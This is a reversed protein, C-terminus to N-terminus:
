NFSRLASYLRGWDGQLSLDFQKDFDAPFSRRNIYHGPTVLACLNRNALSIHAIFSDISIVGKANRVINFLQDITTKGRLDQVLPHENFQGYLLGNQGLLVLHIGSKIILEILAIQDRSALERKPDRSELHICFYEKDINNLLSECCNLKFPGCYPPFQLGSFKSVLGLHADGSSQFQAPDVSLDYPNEGIDSGYGISWDAKRLGWITNLPFYERLDLIVRDAAWRSINIEASMSDFLLEKISFPRSLWPAPLIDVSDVIKSRLLAPALVKAWPGVGLRIRWGGRSLAALAPTAILIDGLHDLKLVCIERNVGVRSCGGRRKKKIRAMLIHALRVKSQNSSLM